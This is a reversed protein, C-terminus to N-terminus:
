YYQHSLDRYMKLAGPHVAFHSCHFERLTEERLEALKPVVVQGRYRLSDDFDM